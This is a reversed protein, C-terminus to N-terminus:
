AADAKTADAVTAPAHLAVDSVVRRVGPTHFAIEFAAHRAKANRAHGGLTVIGDYVGTVVVRSGALETAAEFRRAIAARVDGDCGGRRLAHEGRVRIHNTVGVVGPIARVVREIEARSRRDAVDGGLAINGHFADVTVEGAAAGRAALIMLKARAGLWADRFPHLVAALFSPSTSGTMTATDTGLAQVALSWPLIWAVTLRRFQPHNEAARRTLAEM